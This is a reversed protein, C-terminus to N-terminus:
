RHPLREWKWLGKPPGKDGAKSHNPTLISADVRHQLSNEAQQAATTSLINKLWPDVEGVGCASPTPLTDLLATVAAMNQSARTFTPLQREVRDIAVARGM